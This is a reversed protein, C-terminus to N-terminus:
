APQLMKLRRSCLSTVTPTAVCLVCACCVKNSTTSHATADINSSSSNLDTATLNLLEIHSTSDNADVSVGGSRVCM